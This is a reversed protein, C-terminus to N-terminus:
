FRKKIGLSQNNRVLEVFRIVDIINVEFVGPECIDKLNLNYQSILFQELDSKSKVQTTIEKYLVMFMKSSLISQNIKLLLDRFKSNNNLHGDLGETYTKYPFPIVNFLDSMEMVNKSTENMPNELYDIFNDISSMVDTFKSEGIRRALRAWTLCGEVITQISGAENSFIINYGRELISANNITEFAEQFNMQYEYITARLLLLDIIKQSDQEPVEELARDIIKKANQFKGLRTELKAEQYFLISNHTREKRAALEVRKGNLTAEDGYNMMSILEVQQYIEWEKLSAQIVKSDPARIGMKRSLYLYANVPLEPLSNEIYPRVTDDYLYDLTEPDDGRILCHYLTEARYEPDAKGKYYAVAKEHIERGKYEESNIILEYLALRLDQRFSIGDKTANVLFSEKNLETFICQAQDDTMNTFGCPEALVQKIIDPTIRRVLIGPVAIKATDADHIHDLNRKVLLGQLLTKDTKGIIEKVQEPNTLKEREVIEAMLTLTLPNGGFKRYIFQRLETNTVGKSKLFANAATQNFGKLQIHDFRINGYTVEARGIFITRLRPIIKAIEQVFNFLAFVESTNARYQLEEFSDFIVLIPRRIASIQVAFEKSYKEYFLQRESSRSMTTYSFQNTSNLEKINDQIEERIKNFISTSAPFQVSLQQLANIGLELPNSVSLGPKDFDFYIFPLKQLPNYELQDLIFKAMLTSKGIGGIGTILLPPKDHWNIIDRLWSKISQAMSSKPKWDVYNSLHALDIERGKFNKTLSQFPKLIELQQIKQMVEREDPVNVGTGKLWNCVSHTAILQPLSQNNLDPADGNIYARLMSQTIDASNKDILHLWDKMGKLGLSRFVLNKELDKINYQLRSNPKNSFKRILEVDSNSLKDTGEVAAELEPITFRTFFAAQQIVKNKNLLSDTEPVQIKSFNFKFEKQM